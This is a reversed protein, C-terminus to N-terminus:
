GRFKNTIPMRRDRGFARPTIKIGPPSQRRKHESRDVMNLIKSATDKDFGASVIKDLDEDQEIYAKLIPDLTEYPPLTDKDKQNLRLEATPEKSFVREPIVTNKSNRYGALRYVLTKPVDKIVALGGAMDGYLTAYGTSMESKNGTSLLLWGFKNSLAMLLTGRIRAQLNEETVDRNVGTFHGELALLYMKYISEISINLLKIGLNEATQRADVESEISSYRSPMFVGYVNDKGLADTALVAVLSSDIGGSLGIVVKEFGNKVVYDRLGLVLAEYVEAELGLSGPERHLKAPKVARSLPLDVLLLDEKFAQAKGIINGRPDVVMSQGDFVLEDQGGVLNTYAVFIRNSIAQRRVVDERERTKGMHFPSANINIVLQCGSLAQQKTPGEQHWIDECINVGAFFTAPEAGALKLSFTFAESGKQFYRKEDFVGYNPLFMKRYIGEINGDRIIAAANYLRGGDKDVFGVVATIEGIMEALKKLVRINEAVFRTKFLLDEPPYGVLAMEPFCVIDAKMERARDTYEAIKDANGKLDGVICNIQALALKLTKKKM